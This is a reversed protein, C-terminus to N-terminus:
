RGTCWNNVYFSYFCVFLYFLRSVGDGLQFHAKFAMSAEPPLDKLADDLQSKDLSQDTEVGNCKLDLSTGPSTGLIIFSEDETVKSAM